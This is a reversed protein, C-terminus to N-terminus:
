YHVNSMPWFHMHLPSKFELISLGHLWLGVSVLVSFNHGVLLRRRCVCAHVTNVHVECARMCACVCVCVFPIQAMKLCVNPQGRLTVHLSTHLMEVLWSYLVLICQDHCHSHMDVLLHNVQLTHKLLIHHPTCIDSYMDPVRGTSPLAVIPFFGFSIGTLQSYSSLM